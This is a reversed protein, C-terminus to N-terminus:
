KMHQLLKIREKIFDGKTKYFYTGTIIWGLVILAVLWPHGSDVEMNYSRGQASAFDISDENEVSQPLLMILLVLQFCVAGFSLGSAPIFSLMNIAFVITGFSFLILALFFLRTSSYKILQVTKDVFGTKKSAMTKMTFLEDRIDLVSDGRLQPVVGPGLASVQCTYVLNNDVDRNICRESFALTVMSVDDGLTSAVDDEQIRREFSEMLDEPTDGMVLSSTCNTLDTVRWLTLSETCEDKTCDALVYAKKPGCTQIQLQASATVPTFAVIFATMLALYIITRMAYTM